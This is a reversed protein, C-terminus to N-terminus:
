PQPHLTEFRRPDSINKMFTDTEWPYDIGPPVNRRITVNDSILSLPFTESPRSKLRQLRHAVNSYTPREAFHHQLRALFYRKCGTSITRKVIEEVLNGYVGGNSRNSGREDNELGEFVAYGIV